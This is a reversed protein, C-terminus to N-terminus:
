LLVTLYGSYTSQLCIQTQNMHQQTLYIENEDELGCDSREESFAVYAKLPDETYGSCPSV